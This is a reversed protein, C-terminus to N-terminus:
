FEYKAGKKLNDEAWLPQLNIYHFCQKQQEPKTLDFSVCPKIHDIHWGYFSHNDWNMGEGFLDELHQKCEEISCGLLKITSSHKANKKLAMKIRKRLISRLKFQIDNHYRKKENIRKTEAYGKKWEKGKDSGRYLKAQIGIKEKNREYRVKDKAAIKEKNNDQYKKVRLCIEEKNNKYRKNAITCIIKKNKKYYIKAKASIKEKNNKYIEKKHDRGNNEYYKKERDKNNVRWEKLWQNTCKKCRCSYGGKGNKRKQFESVPKVEGCKTCRKKM